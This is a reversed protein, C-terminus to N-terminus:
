HSRFKFENRAIYLGPIIPLWLTLGRFVVTVALATEFSQGFILLAITSGAEFGGIGGPMFSVTGMISALIFVAFVETLGLASGLARIVLFLTLTDLIFISIRFFSARSILGLSLVREKSIDRTILIINAVLKRRKLWAPAYEIKHSVILFIFSTVTISIIFYLTVAGALIPTSNEQSWFIAIAILTMLSYSLHYAIIDVFVVEFSLWNPLGYKKIERWVFANGAIGGAPIIQDVVLQKVSIAMLDRTKMLYNSTKIVTYWVAGASAYTAIQLLIAIAIPVLSANKLIRVFEGIEAFNLIIVLVLGLIVFLSIVLRLAPVMYTRDKMPVDNM